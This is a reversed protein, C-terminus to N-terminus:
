RREIVLIHVHIALERLELQESHKEDCKQDVITQVRDGTECTSECRREVSVIAFLPPDYPIM